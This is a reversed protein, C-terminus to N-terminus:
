TAEGAAAVKGGSGAVADRARGHEPRAAAAAGSVTASNGGSRGQGMANKREERQRRDRQWFAGSLSCGTFSNRLVLKFSTISALNYIGTNM